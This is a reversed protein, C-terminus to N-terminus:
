REPGEAPADTQSARIDEEVQNRELRDFDIDPLDENLIEEFEDWYLADDDLEDVEPFTSPIEELSTEVSDGVASDDVVAMRANIFPQSQSEEPLAPAPDSVNPLSTNEGRGYVDPGALQGSDKTEYSSPHGIIRDDPFASVGANTVVFDVSGPTSVSGFIVSFRRLLVFQDLEKDNEGTMLSVSTPGGNLHQRKALPLPDDLYKRRNTRTLMIRANVQNAWVLGLRAEKTSERPIFHASNFWKAQDRYIIDGKSADDQAAPYYDNFVDTVENVVVFAINDRAAITHMVNSLEYLAKSREFLTVSSSKEPTNFLTSISDIVILRVPKRKADKRLEDQLAPFTNRLTHLLFEITPASVTHIDSLSCLSPSLLPHNLILQNLRKTPLKAHTTLYCASGSLGGLAPRLQVLLSLQLALQTKGSASEGVLEWVMGTRIGGGIVRDLVADGTTFKDDGVEELLNRIDVSSAVEKCVNEIIAQAESLSTRLRKAIEGPPTLVIDSLGKFNSKKLGAKQAPSLSKVDQIALLHLNM